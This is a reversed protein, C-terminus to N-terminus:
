KYKDGMSASFDFNQLPPKVFFKDDSGPNITAMGQKITINKEYGKTMSSNFYWKGYDKLGKLFDNKSDSDKKYLPHKKNKSHEKEKSNGAGKSDGNDTM